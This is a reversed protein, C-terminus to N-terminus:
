VAVSVLVVIPMATTCAVTAPADSESEAATSNVRGGLTIVESSTEGDANVSAAIPDVRGKRAVTRSWNPSAIGATATVQLEEAGATAVTCAVLPRTVATAFPLASIVAVTVSAGPSLAERATV